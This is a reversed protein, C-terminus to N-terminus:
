AIKGFIAFNPRCKGDSCKLDTSILCVPIGFLPIIGRATIEHKMRGKQMGVYDPRNSESSEEEIMSLGWLFKEMFPLIGGYKDSIPDCGTLSSPNHCVRFARHELPGALYRYPEIYWYTTRCLVPLARHVLWYDPLTGTLSSTGTTRCPVPLAWHLTARYFAKFSPM